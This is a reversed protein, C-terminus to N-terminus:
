SQKNLKKTKITSDLARSVNHAWLVLFKGSNETDMLVSDFVFDVHERSYGEKFGFQNDLTSRAKNVNKIVLLELLKCVVSSVTIPMYSRCQRSDKDKKRFLFEHVLLFLIPSLVLILFSKTFCIYISCCSIVQMYYIFVVYNIM